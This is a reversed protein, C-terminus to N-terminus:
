KPFVTVIILSGKLWVICLHSMGFHEFRTPLSVSLIMCLMMAVLIFLDDMYLCIIIDVDKNFKSHICKDVGNIVYEYSLMGCDFAQKLGYLSKILKCVKHEQGLAM